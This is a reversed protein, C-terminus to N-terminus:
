PFVIERKASNEISRYSFDFFVERTERADFRLLYLRLQQGDPWGMQWKLAGVREPEARAGNLIDILFTYKKYRATNDAATMRDLLAGYEDAFYRAM